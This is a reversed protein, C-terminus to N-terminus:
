FKLFQDKIEFIRQGIYAQLYALPEDNKHDMVIDRAECIRAIVHHLEHCITSYDLTSNKFLVYIKDEDEPDYITWAQAQFDTGELGLDYEKNVSTWDSDIIVIVDIDYIPVEITTTMRNSNDTRDNRQIKNAM